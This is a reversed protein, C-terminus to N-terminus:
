RGKSKIFKINIEIYCIKLLNLLGLYFINKLNINACKRIITLYEKENNKIMYMGAMIYTDLLLKETAKELKSFDHINKAIEVTKLMKNINKQKSISDNNDRNAYYFIKSTYFCNECKELYKYTTYYDEFNNSDCFFDEQMLDKRFIKGWLAGGIFNDKLLDVKFMGEKIRKNHLINTVIEKKEKRYYNFFLIDFKNNKYIDSIDNLVHNNPLYDDSDIFFLLDGYAKKFGNKRAIGPGQNDQFFYKIKKNNESYEKVIEKTRDNSGDDICIVEYENYNQENITSLLRKLYKESNFMPVIISITM